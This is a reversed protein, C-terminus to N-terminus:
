YMLVIKDKNLLVMPLLTWSFEHLSNPLLSEVALGLNLVLQLIRGDAFNYLYPRSRWRSLLRGNGYLDNLPYDLFRHEHGDYVRTGAVFVNNAAPAFKSTDM